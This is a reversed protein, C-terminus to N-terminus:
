RLEKARVLWRGVTSESTGGIRAATSVTMGPVALLAQWGAAEVSAADATEARHRLQADELRRDARARLNAHKRQAIQLRSAAEASATLFENGM